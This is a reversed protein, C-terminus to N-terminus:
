SYISRLRLVFRRSGATRLFFVLIAASYSEFISIFHEASHRSLSRPSISYILSLRAAYSYKM